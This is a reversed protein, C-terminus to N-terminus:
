ALSILSLSAIILPDVHILLSGGSTHLAVCEVYGAAALNVDVSIASGVYWITNGVSNHVGHIVGANDRIWLQRIGTSNVDFAASFKASYFGAVPAILRTPFAVSWMNATDWDEVSFAIATATSTPISQSTTRRVKCAPPKAAAIISDRVKTNWDAANLTAGPVATPPTMYPM